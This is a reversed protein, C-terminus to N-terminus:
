TEYVRVSKKRPTEVTASVGRSPWLLANCAPMCIACSSYPAGTCQESCKCCLIVHVPVGTTVIVREGTTVIPHVEVGGILARELGSWLTDKVLFCPFVTTIQSPGGFVVRAV